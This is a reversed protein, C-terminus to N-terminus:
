SAELTALAHALHARARTLRTRFAGASCGLVEGAAAASLGEVYALAIVAREPENLAALAALVGWSWLRRRHGAPTVNSRALTSM